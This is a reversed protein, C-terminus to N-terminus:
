KLKYIFSRKKTKTNSEKNKLLMKNTAHQAIHISFIGNKTNIEFSSGNSLISVSNSDNSDDSYKKVLANQILCFIDRKDAQAKERTAMKKLQAVIQDEIFDTVEWSDTQNLLSCLLRIEKNTNACETLSFEYVGNNELKKTLDM